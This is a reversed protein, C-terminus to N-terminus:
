IRCVKRYAKACTALSGIFLFVYKRFLNNVVLKENRKQSLILGATILIWFLEVHKRALGATFSVFKSLLLNFVVSNETRKRARLLVAAFFSFMNGLYTTWLWSKMVSKRFYWAQWLLFEFFNSLSERLYRLLAFLNAIYSTSYSLIKPVSERM